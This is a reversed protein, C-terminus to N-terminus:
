RGLRHIAACVTVSQLYMCFFISTTWMLGPSIQVIAVRVASGFVVKDLTISIWEKGLVLTRRFYM